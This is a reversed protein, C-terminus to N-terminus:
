RDNINGAPNSRVSQLVALKLPRDGSQRWGLLDLPDDVRWIEDDSGSSGPEEISRLQRDLAEDLLHPVFGGGSRKLPCGLRKRNDSPDRM